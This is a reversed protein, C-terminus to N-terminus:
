KRRTQSIYVNTIFHVHLLRVHMSPIGAYNETLDPWVVAIYVPMNFHWGSAQCGPVCSYILGHPSTQVRQWKSNFGYSRWSQLFTYPHSCVHSCLSPFSSILTLYKECAMPLRIFRPLQSIYWCVVDSLLSTMRSSTLAQGCQFMILM